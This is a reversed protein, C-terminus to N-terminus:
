GDGERVRKKPAMLRWADEVLESVQGPDAVALRFGLWRGGWVDRFRTPDRRVLAELSAPDCRVAANEEGADLTAFIRGAVRFDPHGMHSGEVTEPLGLACERFERADM